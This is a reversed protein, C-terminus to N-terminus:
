ASLCRNLPDDITSSATAICLTYRYVKRRGESLGEYEADPIYFASGSEELYDRLESIIASVGCVGGPGAQNQIEMTTAGKDARAALFNLVDRLRGPQEPNGRHIKGTARSM